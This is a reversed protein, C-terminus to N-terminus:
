PLVIGGAEMVEAAVRAREAGAEVAPTLGLNEDDAPVLPDVDVVLTAAPDLEPADVGQLDVRGQVVLHIRDVRRMSNEHVIAGGRAPVAEAAIGALDGGGGVLDEDDAPVPRDVAVSIMQIASTYKRCRTPRVQATVRLLQAHGVPPLDVDDAPV